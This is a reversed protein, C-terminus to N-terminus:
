RTRYRSKTPRSRAPARGSAAGGAPAAPVVDRQHATEGGVQRLVAPVQGQRALVHHKDPAADLSAGTRMESRAASSDPGSPTVSFDTVSRPDRDKRRGSRVGTARLLDSTGGGRRSPISFRDGSPAEARARLPPVERECTEPRVHPRRCARRWRGSPPSSPRRCSAPATRPAWGPPIRPSRKRPM